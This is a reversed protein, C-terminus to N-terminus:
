FGDNDLFNNEYFYLFKNRKYKTFTDFFNYMLFNWAYKEFYLSQTSSNICFNLHSVEMKLYKMFAEDEFQSVEIYVTESPAFEIRYMICEIDLTQELLFLQSQLEEDKFNLLM